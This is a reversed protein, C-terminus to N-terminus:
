TARAPRYMPAVERLLTKNDLFPQSGRYAWRVEGAASVVFTGHRLREPEDGRPPTYVAFSEAVRNGGDALVPFGFRGFERFREATEEPPDASLAVVEAGLEHFLRLDENLAFLQAVCHSCHYGYYFVVVVPGRARVDVLQHPRGFDDPLTFDPAARGLLPHDQTPEDARAAALIESLPESLPADKNARVYAVARDRVNPTLLAQLVARLGFAFPVSLVAVTLYRRLPTSVALRLVRM